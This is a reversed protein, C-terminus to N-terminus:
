ATVTQRHREIFGLLTDVFADPQERFCYHGARNLIHMECEEVVPFFQDIAPKGCRDMTASPDNFGWMLLTPVSLSGDAIETKIRDLRELMDAKFSDYLGDAMRAKAEAFQELRGIEVGADVMSETIHDDSYSNAAILYRVAEREEMSEARRRWEAYVPNFPNTVSSSSVITLTAVRGPHDLAVRTVPYGGRSHGVLHVNDLQLADLLGKLHSAHGEITYDDDSAPNDTFGMGLKDFAVVRHREALRDFNLEWDEASGRVGYHGGHVLVLPEGEGASFYRTRAGNVEVYQPNEM